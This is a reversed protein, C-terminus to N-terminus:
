DNNHTKTENNASLSGFKELFLKSATNFFLLEDRSLKVNHQINNRYYGLEELKGVTIYKNIFVKKFYLWNEHENIINAFDSINATTFLERSEGSIWPNRTSSLFQKKMKAITFEPVHQSWSNGYAEVLVKLCIGSLVNELKEINKRATALTMFETIDIDKIEKGMIVTPAEGELRKSWYIRGSGTVTKKLIDEKQMSILVNKAGRKMKTDSKSVGFVRRSISSLLSKEEVEDKDFLEAQIAARFAIFKKPKRKKRKRRIM